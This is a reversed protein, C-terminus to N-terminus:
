GIKKIKKHADHLAAVIVALPSQAYGADVLERLMKATEPQLYGAPMRKGGRALLAQNSLKVRQSNTLATMGIHYANLPYLAM